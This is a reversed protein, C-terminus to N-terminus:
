TKKVLTYLILSNPILHMSRSAASFSIHDTFAYPITVPLYNGIGILLCSIPLYKVRAREWIFSALSCHCLVNTEYPYQIVKSIM